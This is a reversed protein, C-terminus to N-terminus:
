LLPGEPFKMRQLAQGHRDLPTPFRTSGRLRLSTEESLASPLIGLAFTTRTPVPLGSGMATVWPFGQHVM